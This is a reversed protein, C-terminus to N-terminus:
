HESMCKNYESVASYADFALAGLGVLTGIGPVAELGDKVGVAAANVTNRAVVVGGLATGTAGIGTGIKNGQSASIGLSAAGAGLRAVDALDGGGPIISAADLVSGALDNKAVLAACAAARNNSPSPQTSQPAEQRQYHFQGPVQTGISISGPDNSRQATVVIDNNGTGDDDCHGSADCTVALGLPDSWNLPSNYTFAYLNIDDATGIPDAQWFRGDVASYVRSKYDYAQLFADYLQGTYLYPYSSAGPGVDNVAQSPQGYADYTLTLVNSGATSMAITSGQRDTHPYYVTGNVDKFALREDPDPGLVYIRDGIYTWNNTNYASTYTRDLVMEPRDPGASFFLLGDVGFRYNSTGNPNNHQRQFSRGLADSDVNLWESGSYTTVFKLANEQNYYRSLTADQFYTGSANYSRASGNVTNYQNLANAAAYSQAAMLVTYIYAGNSTTRSTLRGAADYGFGYSVNASPTNPFSHSLTNLRGAGDFSYGVSSGDGYTLSVRQSLADWNFTAVAAGDLTASKMRELDDYTYSAVDGLPYGLSVLNGVADYGYTFTGLNDGHTHVRGASDYSYSHIWGNTSNATLVRGALDYTFSRDYFDWWNTNQNETGGTPCSGSNTAGTVSKEATMRGLADYCRTQALAARNTWITVESKPDYTNQETTRDAYTTTSLRDFGDYAYNIANGRADTQSLVKGNPSYTLTAYNQQLATGYARQEQTRQGANDYISRTVYGTPDTVTSLRGAADYAFNTTNNLPDVTSAVRGTPTYTTQSTRWGTVNNSVDFGTARSVSTLRGRGDYAFTSYSMWPYNCGASTHAEITKRRDADFAYDTCDSRPDFIGVLNGFVDYYYNTTLNLAWAGSGAGVTSSTLFAGYSYANNASYGYTTLIEASTGVCSPATGSACQSTSTLKTVAGVQVLAGSSNKAYTPIASYGYRIQPQVGNSDAPSTKTLVLGTTNDYTYSTVNGLADTTTTPENCSAPYTCTAPYTASTTIAALGSGPKPSRVTQALNGRSDYYYSESNGEPLTKSQIQGWSNGTWTTTSGNGDISKVMVGNDDVVMSHANGLPDTQTVKSGAPDLPYTNTYTGDVTTMTSLVRQGTNSNYTYVFNYTPSSDGPLKIGVIGNPSFSDFSYTTTNGLADTVLSDGASDTSYTVTPWWVSFSSCGNATPDCYDVALDIGTVQYLVGFSSPLYQFSLMYGRNNVVSQIRVTQYTGSMTSGSQSSYTITTVEGNPKTIKVLHADSTRVTPSISRSTWYAGDYLYITGDGVIYTWQNSTSNYTLSSGSQQDPTYPSNSNVQSFTESHSGFSVTFSGNADDSIAGLFNSRWGRHEGIYSQQFVLGGDPPGISLDTTTFSLEGNASYGAAATGAGYDVIPPLDSTTAQASAPRM